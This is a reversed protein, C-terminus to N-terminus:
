RHARKSLVQRIIRVLLVGPVVPSLVVYLVRQPGALRSAREGGFQRGHQFRQKMFGWFGFSRKHYVIISPVLLLQFGAKKLEAHVTPEWFGHRWVQQCRDIHVRKYSENDGPVEPAVGTPFSFM